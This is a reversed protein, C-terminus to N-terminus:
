RCSSELLMLATVTEIVIDHKYYSICHSERVRGQSLVQGNSDLVEVFEGPMIRTADVRYSDTFIFHGYLIRPNLAHFEKDSLIFGGTRRACV